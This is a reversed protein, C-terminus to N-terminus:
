IHNWVSRSIIKEILALSVGFTQAITKRKIKQQALNRIELVQKATLKAAPNNEGNIDYNKRQRNKNVMDQINESQTGAILHEPNCCEPNDCKHCVYINDPIESIHLIYSLRHAGIIKKNYLIKGYGKPDKTGSWKWCRTAMHPQQIGEKNIKALLRIMPDVPKPGKM